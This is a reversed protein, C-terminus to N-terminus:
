RAHAAPRPALVLLLRTDWTRLAGHKRLSRRLAVSSVLWVLRRWRPLTLCRELPHMESGYRLRLVQAQKVLALLLMGPRRDRPRALKRLMALPTSGPAGLVNSAHQRYFVTPRDLYDIQGTLSAVLALWWDHMLAQEPIPLACNLLARNCLVTCGTVVNTLTLDDLNTRSPDLRQRQLYTVGLPVALHSVLELDSHVLLPMEPGHITELRKLRVLSCELKDPWWLDDQDALAVYPAVSAQLLANMNAQCGLNSESPILQLWTGYHQQLSQILALTGDSSGDDRVLVRVPRLTQHHITALQAELFAVGNYTPLVVEVQSCMVVVGLGVKSLLAM